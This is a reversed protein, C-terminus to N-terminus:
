RAVRKRLKYRTAAREDALARTVADETQEWSLGVVTGRSGAERGANMAARAKERHRPLIPASM